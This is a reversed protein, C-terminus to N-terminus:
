LILFTILFIFHLAYSSILHYTLTIVFSRLVSSIFYSLTYLSFVISMLCYSIDHPLFFCCSIALSSIALSQLPYCPIALSQLLYCPVALSLMLCCSVVHSLMLCCLSLMPLIEYFFFFFFFEVFEVYTTIIQPCKSIRDNRLVLNLKVLRWYKRSILSFM